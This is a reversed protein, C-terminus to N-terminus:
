WGGVGDGSINVQGATVYGLRSTIASLQDVQLSRALITGDVVLTGDIGVTPTGAVSGIVFPYKTTGAVSQAVAFRDVLITFNSSAGDNNLLVGSVKGDVTMNIGWKAQLAGTQTARVSAEQTISAEAGNMRVALTDRLVAEAADASARATAEQRIAAVAGRDSAESTYPTPPLSGQEAKCLRIGVDGTTTHGTWIFVVSGTVATAPAVAQVAWDNRRAQENLFDYNGNHLVTTTGLSTGAANFFEVGFGSTGAGTHFFADGSGTYISGGNAPFRPSSAWGNAPVGTALRATAGWADEILTWGGTSFTWNDLDFEFGGNKILNGRVYGVARASVQEIVQALQQDGETILTQVSTIATGRAIAEDLLRESLGSGVNLLDAIQLDLDEQLVALAEGISPNPTMEISGPSSNNGAADVATVWYRYTGATETKVWLRATTSGYAEATSYVSGRKIAYGSIPQSTRSDPWSIEVQAGWVEGHLAPALPPLIEVTTSIPVSSQGILNFHAAWVRQTGSPLWGLNASLAKGNFK